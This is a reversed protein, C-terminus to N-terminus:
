FGRSHPGGPRTRADRNAVDIESAVRRLTLSITEMRRGVQEASKEMQSNLTETLQTLRDSLGGSVEEQQELLRRNTAELSETLATTTGQVRDAVLSLSREARALSDANGRVADSVKLTRRLMASYEQSLRQAEALTEGLEAQTREHWRAANTLASALAAFEERLGDTLQERFRTAMADLAEAQRTAVDTELRETTSVARNLLPILRADMAAEVSSAMRAATDARLDELLEVQRALLERVAADAARRRETEKRARRRLDVWIAMVLLLVILGAPVTTEM